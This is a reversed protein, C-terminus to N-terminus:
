LKQENGPSRQHRCSSAPAGRQRFDWASSRRPCHRNPMRGPFRAGGCCSASAMLVILFPTAWLVATRATLRPKLLVYDGYRAVVFDKIQQDSDGRTLRERILIRLDRALPADSEDISQNQCVLCRFGTSLDRARQELKADKLIEDPQVAYAPTVLLLCFLLCWRM